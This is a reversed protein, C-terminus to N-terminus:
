SNLVKKLKDINDNNVYYNCLKLTLSDIGKLDKNNKIFLYIEDLISNKVTSKDYVEYIGLLKKFIKIKTSSEKLIKSKKLAKLLYKECVDYRKLYLYKDSLSIYNAIVTDSSIREKLELCKEEYEISKEINNQKYYIVSINKYAMAIINGNDVTNAISLVEQLTSIGSEFNGMNIYINGKLILIDLKKSLELDNFLIELRNLMCLSSDYKEMQALALANNFLTRKELEKNNINNSHMISLAYNNLHLAEEYDQKKIACRGLKTNVYAIKEQNSVRVHNELSKIYYIKSKDIHSKQYFYDGVIEYITAKKAAVDWDKLLNETNDLEEKFKEDNGMFDKLKKIKTDLLYSVQQIENALLYDADVKLDLKKDEIVRKLNQTLIEATERTLKVKGNEIYSILSRDIKDGALEKQNIKLFKRIAKIKKNKPLIKEELIYM